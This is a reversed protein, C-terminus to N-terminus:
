HLGNPLWPNDVDYKVRALWSKLWDASSRFPGRDVDIAQYVERENAPEPVLTM